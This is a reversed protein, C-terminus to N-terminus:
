VVESLIKSSVHNENSNLSLQITKSDEDVNSEAEPPQELHVTSKKINVTTAADENLVHGPIHIDSIRINESNLQSGNLKENCSIVTGQVTSCAPSVCVTFGHPYGRGAQSYHGVYSDYLHQCHCGEESGVTSTTDSVACANQPLDSIDPKDLSLAALSNMDEAQVSSEKMPMLQIDVTPSDVNHHVEAITQCLPSPSSSAIVANLRDQSLQHATITNGADPQDQSFPTTTYCNDQNFDVRRCCGENTNRLSQTREIRVPPPTSTRCLPSQCIPDMRTAQNLTLRRHGGFSGGGSSQRQISGSGFSALSSTESLAEPSALPANLMGHSLEEGRVGVAGSRVELQFSRKLAQVAPDCPRDRVLTPLQNVILATAVGHPQLSPLPGPASNVFGSDIDSSQHTPTTIVTPVYCNPAAQRPRRRGPKAPCVHTSLQSFILFYVLILASVGTVCRIYKCRNIIIDVKQLNLHISLSM